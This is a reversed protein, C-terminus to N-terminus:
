SEIQKQMNSKLNQRLFSAIESLDDSANNAPDAPKYISGSLFKTAMEILTTVLGEELPFPTDLVDCSTEDQGECQLKAAAEADEFIGIMRVQEM